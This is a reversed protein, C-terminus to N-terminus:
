VDTEYRPPNKKNEAYVEENGVRMSRRAFPRRNKGSLRQRSAVKCDPAYWMKPIVNSSKPPGKSYNWFFPVCGKCDLQTSLIRWKGYVELLSVLVAAVTSEGMTSRGLLGAAPESRFWVVVGVFRVGASRQKACHSQRPKQRCDCGTKWAPATCQENVLDGYARGPLGKAVM